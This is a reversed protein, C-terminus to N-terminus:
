LSTGVIHMAIALTRDLWEEFSQRLVDVSLAHSFTFPADCAPMAQWEAAEQAERELRQNVFATCTMAGKPTYGVAHASVIIGARLNDGALSRLNLRTWYRPSRTNAFYNFHEAVEVIQARFYHATDGESSTLSVEVAVRNRGFASNLAREAQEFKCRVIAMLEQAIGAAQEAAAM